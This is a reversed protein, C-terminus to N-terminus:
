VHTAETDIHADDAAVKSADPACLAKEVVSNPYERQTMDLARRRYHGKPDELKNFMFEEKELFLLGPYEIGAERGKFVRARFKKRQLSM